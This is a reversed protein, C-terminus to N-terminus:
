PALIQSRDDNGLVKKILRAPMQIGLLFALVSCSTVLSGTPIWTRSVRESKAESIGRVNGEARKELSVSKQRKAIKIAECFSAEIQTEEAGMAALFVGRLRCLEGCWHRDEFREVLAEAEKIADLGEPIRGALYLAEAKLAVFFPLFLMSGIARYDRIGEEIGAIGAATNGSASHAWGHCVAGTARLHAFNHRTSLEMLDSAFREV